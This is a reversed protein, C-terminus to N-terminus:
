LGRFSEAVSRGGGAVRNRGGARPRHAPSPSGDRDVTAESRFATEYDERDYAASAKQSQAAEEPSGTEAARARVTLLLPLAMVISLRKRDSPPRMIRAIM